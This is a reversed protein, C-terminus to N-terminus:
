VLINQRTTGFLKARASLLPDKKPGEAGEQPRHGRGIGGIFKEARTYAKQYGVHQFQGLFPQFLGFQTFITHFTRSIVHLPAHFQMFTDSVM